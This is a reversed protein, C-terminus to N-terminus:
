RTRQRFLASALPVAVAIIGVCWVVAIWGNSGVPAGLLAARMTEIVPTAPQHEAIGRLASPLTEPAVFASSLYPVFLVFFTFGTAGDVSRAAVGVAASVTAITLMFLAAVGAASLWGVAGADPRFGMIIALVVVLVTSALNRVLNALVHGALLSSASTAMARLRDVTGSTLDETVAMAVHSASYGAALVIIGPVVYQLYADRGGTGGLPAGFVYVFMVLLMVPLVFAMILGDVHRYQHRLSRGTLATTDRLWGGLSRPPMSTTLTTM